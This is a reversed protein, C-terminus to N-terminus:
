GDAGDGGIRDALADLAAHITDPTFGRRALLGYLRRKRVPPELRAMSRLRREALETAAALQQDDDATAEHALQDILSRDIGKQFLKHKLLAPGAPKRAVTDRIVARGYAADDLMGLETLRDLVRERVDPPHELGRLKTDLERRSYPRRSLRDLAQRLAKDYKEVNAVREALADDWPMGVKLGLEDIHKLSLAAVVTGKKAGARGVRVTARQSDRQTPVIAVIAADEGFLTQPEGPDSVGADYAPSV